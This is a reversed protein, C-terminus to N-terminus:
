KRKTKPTKKKDEIIKTPKTPVTQSKMIKKQEAEKTMEPKQAHQPAVKKQVVKPEEKKQKKLPTTLSNLFIFFFLLLSSVKVEPAAEVAEVEEAQRKAKVQPEPEAARRHAEEKRKAYTNTDEICVGKFCSEQNKCDTDM